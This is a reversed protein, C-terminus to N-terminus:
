GATAGGELHRDVDDYVTHTGVPGGLGLNTPGDEGAAVVVDADVEDAGFLNETGCEVAGEAGRAPGAGSGGGDFDDM